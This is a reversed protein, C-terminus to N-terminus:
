LVTGILFTHVFEVVEFIIVGQSAGSAQPALGLAAM